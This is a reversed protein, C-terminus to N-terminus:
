ATNWHGVSRAGQSSPRHAAAGGRATSVCVSLGSSDVFKLCEASSRQIIQFSVVLLVSNSQTDRGRGHHDVVSGSMISTPFRFPIPPGFLLMERPLSVRGKAGNINLIIMKGLCARSVLHFVLFCHRKRLSTISLRHNEYRSRM